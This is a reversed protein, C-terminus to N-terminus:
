TAAFLYARVNTRQALAARREWVQAFVDQVIDVAMEDSRVYRWAFATLPQAYALVMQEFAADDLVGRERSPQVARRTERGVLKSVKRRAVMGRVREGTASM